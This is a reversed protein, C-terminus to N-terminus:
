EGDNESSNRSRRKNRLRYNDKRYKVFTRRNNRNNRQNQNDSDNNSSSTNSTNVSNNRKDEGTNRKDESTNNQRSSNYKRSPWQIKKDRKRSNNKSRYQSGDKVSNKNRSSVDDSESESESNDGSESESKDDLTDGNDEDNDNDDTGGNGDNGSNGDNLNNSGNNGNQIVSLDANNVLKRVADKGIVANEGTEEEGSFDTNSDEYTEQAFRAFYSQLEDRSIVKTEDNFDHLNINESSKKAGSTGSAGSAGNNESNLSSNDASIVVSYKLDDQKDASIENNRKGKRAHAGHRAHSGSSKKKRRSGFLEVFTGAFAESISVEERKNESELAGSRSAVFRKNRRKHPAMSFLTASLVAMVIFLAGIFYLPTAFNPVSHRRWRMEIYANKSNDGLDILFVRKSLQSRLASTNDSSNTRGSKQSISAEVGDADRKGSETHMYVGSRSQIFDSLNVSLRAIGAQCSRQEWLDSNEFPVDKNKNSADSASDKSDSKSKSVNSSSDNNSNPDKDGEADQPISSLKNWDKLGTIRQVPYGSVWGRADKALASAICVPKHTGEVAVDIRVHNDVMNMVGPDTMIYRKGVIHGYANIVPDPKWITSNLVGLVISVIALAVFLPAVIGRMIKARMTVKQM